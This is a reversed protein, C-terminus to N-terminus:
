CGKPLASIKQYLPHRGLAERYRNFLFWSLLALGLLVAGVLM